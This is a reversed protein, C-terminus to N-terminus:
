RAEQGGDSPIADVRFYRRYADPLKKPRGDAGTFVHRSLGVAIRQGAKGLVEYSFTMSRSRLEVVRTRVVFEDDYALPCLYRCNAEVVPLFTQTQRELDAYSFGRAKCYSTRAVEFWVFYEGYYARGMQDTESYRVQLPVDVFDSDVM